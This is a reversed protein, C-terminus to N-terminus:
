RKRLQKHLKEHCRRCLTRNLRGIEDKHRRLHVSLDVICSCEVCKVDFRKTRRAKDRWGEPHGKPQGSGTWVKTRVKSETVSINDFIDPSDPKQETLDAKMYPNGKPTVRVHKPQKRPDSKIGLSSMSFLIIQKERTNPIPDSGWHLKGNKTKVRYEDLCYEIGKQTKAKLWIGIRQQTYWDLSSFIRSMHGYRYYNAWGRIIRNLAIIKMRYDTNVTNRQTLTKIKQKYRKIGDKRAVIRFFTRKSQPNTFVKLYFGLFNFGDRVHTIHSKELNLTLKQTNFFQNIEEKEEAVISKRANSLIVWDDAYRILYFNGKGKKRLKVREYHTKTGWKNFWWVDFDHLYINSLLPSVVGGQPTGLVTNSFLGNDLIGSKLTKRIITIIKEDAIRRRIKSLLIKHNVSDFYKRLDGEIAWHYKNIILPHMRIIAHWTNHLPRFGYNCDLFDSEWIPELLMRLCEQATRDKITPIGLPRMEDTHPKPIYVRKVPAPKYRRSKIEDTLEVVFEGIKDQSLGGSKQLYSRRTIGDIGSTRSGTNTLIKRFAQEVWNPSSILSLLDEFKHYAVTFGSLYCFHYFAYYTLFSPLFKALSRNDYVIKIIM